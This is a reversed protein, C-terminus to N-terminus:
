LENSKRTILNQLQKLINDPFFLFSIGSALLISLIIYDPSTNIFLYGLGSLFLIIGILTTKWNSIILKHIM